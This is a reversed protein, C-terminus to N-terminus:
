NKQTHKLVNVQWQQFLPNDVPVKYCQSVQSKNSSPRTRKSNVEHRHRRTHVTRDSISYHCVVPPSHFSRTTMASKECTIVLIIWTLLSTLVTCQSVTILWKHCQMISLPQPLFTCTASTRRTKPGWRHSHASANHLKIYHEKNFAHICVKNM